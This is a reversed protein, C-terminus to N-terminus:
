VGDAPQPHRQGCRVAGLAGKIVQDLAGPDVFRPSNSIARRQLM